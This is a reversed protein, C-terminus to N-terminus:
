KLKMGFLNCLMAQIWGLLLVPILTLVFVIEYFMNSRSDPKQGKFRNRISGIPIGLSNGFMMTAASALVCQAKQIGYENVVQAWVEPDYKGRQDAYHQAFLVGKAQQPPVDPFEGSVFAQIEDNSMGSKLAQGTHVYSCMPCDNVATVALMVREQFQEDILGLKRGRKVYKISRFAKVTIRYRECLTFLRKGTQQNSM